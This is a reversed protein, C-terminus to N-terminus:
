EDNENAIAKQENEHMRKQQYEMENNLLRKHRWLEMEVLGKMAYRGIAILLFICSLVSVVSHYPESLQMPGPMPIGIFAFIRDPITLFTAIGGFTYFFIWGIKAAATEMKNRQNNPLAHNLM